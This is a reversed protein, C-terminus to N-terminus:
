EATAAARGVLLQPLTNGLELAVLSPKRKISFRSYQSLM